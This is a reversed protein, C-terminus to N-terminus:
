GATSTGTKADKICAMYREFCDGACRRDNNWLAVAEQPDTFMRIWKMETMTTEEGAVHGIEAEVHHRM